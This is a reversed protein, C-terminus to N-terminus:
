GCASRGPQPHVGAEDIRWGFSWSSLDVLLEAAADSGMARPRGDVIQVPTVDLTTSQEDITATFFASRASVGRASPFAFNGTSHIIWDDEIQELGQLVHPHSGVILDAGAAVWRAALEHQYPQPCHDKEIGWHVMVVTYDAAQEAASVAEVTRDEFGPCAWASEPWRTLDEAVWGCEIHTFGAFAISWDGVQAVHAAYAAGADSGAGFFGLDGRALLDITRLLGDRRFDLTHNNALSVADVGAATLLDVTQPPSRFIYTKDLPNGAGPEGITTELNVATFDPNTLLDAVDGLPDRQDLGHTFSTDGAFGITIPNKPPRTTTTPSPAATTARRASTASTEAATDDSVAPLAALVPPAARDSDTEASGGCAAALVLFAAIWPRPRHM